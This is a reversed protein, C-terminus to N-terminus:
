AVVRGLVIVDRLEGSSRRFHAKLRGEERFGHRELLTLAAENEPFVEASLKHLHRLQACTLAEKILARGVGRRRWEPSVSFGLSAPGPDCLALALEGVIEGSAEAVFHVNHGAEVLWRIREGREEVGIESVLSDEGASAILRAIAEADNSAASRVSFPKM